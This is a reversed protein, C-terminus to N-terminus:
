TSPTGRLPSKQEIWATHRIAERRDAITMLNNRISRRASPPLDSVDLWRSVELYASQLDSCAAMLNATAEAANNAVRTM